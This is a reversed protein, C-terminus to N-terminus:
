SALALRYVSIPSLISHILLAFHSYFRFISKTLCTAYWPNKRYPVHRFKRPLTLDWRQDVCHGHCSRTRSGHSTAMMSDSALHRNAGRRWCRRILSMGLKTSSPMNLLADRTRSTAIKTPRLWGVRQRSSHVKTSLSFILFDSKQYKRCRAYYVGLLHITYQTEMMKSSLTVLRIILSTPLRESEPMDNSIGFPLYLPKCQVPGM